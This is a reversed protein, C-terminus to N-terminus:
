LLLPIPILYSTQLPSVLFPSLMQFIFLIVMLIKKFVSFIFFGEVKLLPKLHKLRGSIGGVLPLPPLHNIPLPPHPGTCFYNQPAIGIKKTLIDATWYLVNLM